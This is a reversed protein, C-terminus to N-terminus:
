KKRNLQIKLAAKELEKEHTSEKDEKVEEPQEEEPPKSETAEILEAEDFRCEVTQPPKSEQAEELKEEAFEDAKEEELKAETM